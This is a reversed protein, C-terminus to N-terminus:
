IVLQNKRFWVSTTMHKELNELYAQVFVSTTKSNCHETSRQYKSTNQEKDGQKSSILYIPSPLLSADLALM